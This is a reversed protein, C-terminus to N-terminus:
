FLETCNGQYAPTIVNCSDKGIYTAKKGPEPSTQNESLPVVYWFLLITARSSMPSPLSARSQTVLRVAQQVEESVLPFIDAKPFQNKGM